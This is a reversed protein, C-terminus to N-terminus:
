VSRRMESIECIARIGAACRCHFLFNLLKYQPNLLSFRVNQFGEKWVEDDFSEKIISRKQHETFGSNKHVAFLKIWRVYMYLCGIYYSDFPLGNELWLEKCVKLFNKVETTFNNRFHGTVSTSNIIYHYGIFDRFVIKNAALFVQVNFVADERVPINKNFRISDIVGKKYLKCVSFGLVQPYYSNDKDSKNDLLSCVLQKIRKKEFIVNKNKRFLAKGSKEEQVGGIVVDANTAIATKIYNELYDADLYDDADVFSIYDGKAVDLGINRANSVGGNAITIVQINQNLNAFENCIKESNDVSGDNIIIAEFDKYTQQVISELCRRLYKEANYVPVIVSIM